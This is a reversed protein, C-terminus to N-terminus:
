VFGVRKAKRMKKKNIFVCEGTRTDTGEVGKGEIVKVVSIIKDKIKVVEGPKFGPLRVSFSVRYIDRGDKRGYLKRSESFSGGLKEVITSSIRRGCDMSSVYIDLGEKLREEKSVFDADGLSSPSYAIEDAVALEADTPVRWEARIQVIAAYYGGAIRSCRECIGRNLVVAVEGREEIEVGKLEANVILSVRARRAGEKFETRLCKIEVSCDSGYKKRIAKRVSGDVMAEISTRETGKFFFGCYTCLSIGPSIVEVSSASGSDSDSDSDSDSGLLTIGQRFCDKCLSDFFEDTQRGCKPCFKSWRERKREEEERDVKYKNIKYADRSM